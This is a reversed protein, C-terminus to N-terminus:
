PMEEIPQLPAASAIQRARHRYPDRKSWADIRLGAM